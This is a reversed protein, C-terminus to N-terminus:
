LLRVNSGIRRHGGGGKQKYEGHGSGPGLGGGDAKEWSERETQPSILNLDFRFIRKCEAASPWGLKINCCSTEYKEGGTKMGWIKKFRRKEGGAGGGGEHTIRLGLLGKPKRSQEFYFQLTGDRREANEQFIDSDNRTSVNACVGALLTSPLACTGYSGLLSGRVFLGEDREPRAKVPVVVSRLTLKAAERM